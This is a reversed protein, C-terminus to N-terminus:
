RHTLPWGDKEDADRIREFDVVHEAFTTDTRQNEGVDGLYANYRHRLAKLEMLRRELKRVRALRMREGASLSEEDAESLDAGPQIGLEGCLQELEEELDM